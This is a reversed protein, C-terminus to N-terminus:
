IKYLMGSFLPQCRNSVLFLQDAFQDAGLDAVIAGQTAHVLAAQALGIHGFQGIEVRVGNGPQFPAGIVVAYGKGGQDVDGISQTDIHGKQQADALILLFQNM